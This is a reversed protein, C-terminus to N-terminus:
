SNFTQCATERNHLLKNIQCLQPKFRNHKVHPCLLSVGICYKSFGTARVGVTHMQRIFASDASFGDQKVEAIAIGDLSASDGNWFLRVGLDVTVREVGRISVLTIRQFVNSLKPQLAEVPYPYHARLFAAAEQAIETSLEQTPIRSKVTTDANIKHKVELFALDSDAYARERVKYRNRWGNHHQRYLALDHTDFYLTQYHHARRNDIKLVRYHKIVRELARALQEESLLYKTDTRRLLAARAMESLQIADFSALLDPRWSKSQGTM